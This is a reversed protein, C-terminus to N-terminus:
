FSVFVPIVIVVLVIMLLLMMPILMKTEAKNSAVVALERRNKYAKKSEEKMRQVFNKNGRRLNQSLLAGFELYKQNGCKLGFSEYIKGESEGNKMQQDAIKMQEYPFSKEKRKEYDVVMREWANRITYGACLLLAMKSVIEPYMRELEEARKEIEQNVKEREFIVTGIILVVIFLIWEIYKPENIERFEVEKGSIVEPLLYFADERSKEEDLSIQYELDKIYMDSKEAESLCLRPFFYVKREFDMYQIKATIVAENSHESEDNSINEAIREGSRSLLKYNSSEWTISFPYGKLEKVFDLDYIIYDWNQNEGLVSKELESLFMQYLREVEDEEYQKSDVQIKIEHADEGEVQMVLDIERAGESYEGRSIEKVLNNESINYFIMIILVVIGILSIISIRKLLKNRRKRLMLDVRFVSNEKKKM